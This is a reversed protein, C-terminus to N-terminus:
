DLPYEIEEPNDILRIPIDTSMGAEAPLYDPYISPCVDFRDPNDIDEEYCRYAEEKEEPTKHRVEMINLGAQMAGFYQGGSTFGDTAEAAYIVVHEEAAGLIPSLDPDGTPDEREQQEAYEVFEEAPRDTVLIMAGAIQFGAEEVYFRAGTPAPRFVELQFQAPFDGSVEVTEGIVFDGVQDNSSVWYLGAYAESTPSVRDDTVIGQVTALPEGAYDGDVQSDCGAMAVPIATALAFIAQTLTARTM